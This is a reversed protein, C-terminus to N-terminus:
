LTFRGPCAQLEFGGSEGAMFSQFIEVRLMLGRGISRQNHVQAGRHEEGLTLVHHHKPRAPRALGIEGYDHTILGSLYAMSRQKVNGSAPGRAQLLDVQLPFNGRFKDSQSAVGLQGHVPDGVNGEILVGRTQTELLEGASSFV